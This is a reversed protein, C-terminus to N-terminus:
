LCAIPRPIVNCGTAPPPVDVESVAIEQGDGGGGCATLALALAITALLKMRLGGQHDEFTTSRSILLLGGFTRSALETLL